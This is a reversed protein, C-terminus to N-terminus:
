LPSKRETTRMQREFRVRLTLAVGLGIPGFAVGWAFATSRELREAPIISASLLGCLLAIAMCAIVSLVLGASGLTEIM